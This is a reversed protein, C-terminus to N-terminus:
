KELSLRSLLHDIGFKGFLHFLDDSIRNKISLLKSM